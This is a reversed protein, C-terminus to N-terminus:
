RTLHIGVNGLEVTIRYFRSDTVGAALDSITSPHANRSQALTRRIFNADPAASMDAIPKSGYGVVYYRNLNFASSVSGALNTFYSSATGFNNGLVWANGNLAGTVRIDSDPASSLMTMNCSLNNLLVADANTPVAIGGSAGSNAIRSGEFTVNSNDSVQAFTSASNSEYWADRVLLSAGQSAQYTLYNGGSSGAFLNTRGYQPKGQQALPGGVVKLGVGTSAPAVATYALQFNHLEVLAYDLSDVFMNASLSRLASPQQM